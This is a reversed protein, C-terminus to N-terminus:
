SLRISWPAEKNPEVGYDLKQDNYLGYAHKESSSLERGSYQDIVKGLMDGIEMTRESLEPNEMKISARYILVMAQLLIEKTNEM